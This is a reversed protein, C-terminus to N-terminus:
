KFNFSWSNGSRNVTGEGNQELEEFLKRIDKSELTDDYQKWGNLIWNEDIQTFKYKKGFIPERNEETISKSASEMKMGFIINQKLSEKM